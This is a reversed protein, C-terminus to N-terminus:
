HVPLLKLAAITLGLVALMSGINWMVIKMGMANVDAKTAMERHIAPFETALTAKIANVDAKTAMERHIAPFETALTAKIASVDSKLVGIDTRIGRVDTELNEVRKELGDMGGGGGDSTKAYPGGIDFEALNQRSVPVGPFPVLNDNKM